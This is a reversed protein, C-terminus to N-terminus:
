KTMEQSHVNERSESYLTQVRLVSDGEYECIGIMYHKVSYDHRVKTEYMERAKTVADERSSCPIRTDQYDINAEAYWM